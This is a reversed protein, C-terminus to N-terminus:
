NARARNPHVPVICMARAFFKERPQTFKGWLWLPIVCYSSLKEKPAKYAQVDIKWSPSPDDTFRERIAKGKRFIGINLGGAKRFQWGDGSKGRQKNLQGGERVTESDRVGKAESPESM